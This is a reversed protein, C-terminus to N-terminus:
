VAEAFDLIQESLDYLSAAFCKRCRHTNVGIVSNGTTGIGQFTLTYYSVKSSSDEIKFHHADAMPLDMEEDCINCIYRNVTTM